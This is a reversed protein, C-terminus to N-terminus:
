AQPYDPIDEPTLNHLSDIVASELSCAIYHRKRVHAPKSSTKHTITIYRHTTIHIIWEVTSETVKTASLAESFRKSILTTLPEKFTGTFGQCMDKMREKAKM